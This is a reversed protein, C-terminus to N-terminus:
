RAGWVRQWSEVTGMSGHVLLLGPGSGATLLGIRVGDASTRSRRASFIGSGVLDTARGGRPDRYTADRLPCIM